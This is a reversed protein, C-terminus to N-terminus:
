VSVSKSVPFSGLENLSVLVVKFAFVVVFPCQLFIFSHVLIESSYWHLFTFILTFIRLINTLNLAPMFSIVADVFPTLGPISIQNLM